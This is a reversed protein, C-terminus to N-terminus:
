KECAMSFGYGMGSSNRYFSIYLKNSGQIQAWDAMSAGTIAESQLQTGLQVVSFGAQVWGKSIELADYLCSIWLCELAWDVGALRNNVRFLLLKSAIEHKQKVSKQFDATMFSRSLCVGFDKGVQRQPAPRTIYGFSAATQHKKATILTRIITAVNPILSWKGALFPYLGSKQWPQWTLASTGDHSPPKRQWRELQFGCGNMYSIQLLELMFPASAATQHWQCMLGGEM